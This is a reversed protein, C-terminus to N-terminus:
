IFKCLASISVTNPPLGKIVKDFGKINEIDTVIAAVIRSPLMEFFQHPDKNTLMKELTWRDGEFL